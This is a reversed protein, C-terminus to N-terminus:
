IGNELKKSYFSIRYLAGSMECFNICKMLEQKKDVDLVTPYQEKKRQVDTWILEYMIRHIVRFRRHILTSNLIKVNIDDSIDYEGKNGLQSSVAVKM